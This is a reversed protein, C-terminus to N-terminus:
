RSKATIKHHADFARRAAERNGAKAYAQALRYHAPAYEPNLELVKELLRITEQVDGRQWVPKHLEFYAPWFGPDIANAQRLLQESEEPLTLALLYPGLAKDPHARIFKQLRERVATIRNGADPLLTELGAYYSEEGPSLDIATLFEDLADTNRGQAYLALGLLRHLEASKPFAGVAERLEAEAGKEARKDLLFQALAVRYAERQPDLRVAEKWHAAASEPAAAAQALRSHLMARGKAVAPDAPALRAAKQAADEADTIRNQRMRVEAIALWVFPWDPQQRAAEELSRSAEEISNQRLAMVGRRYLEEASQAFLALLLILAM